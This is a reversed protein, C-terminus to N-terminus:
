NLYYFGMNVCDFAEELDCFIGAVALKSNMSNLTETTLKYIADDTRLGTTFGYQENSLINYKSLHILIRKQMVTEFILLFINFTTMKSVDVWPGGEPFTDLYSHGSKKAEDATTEGLFL